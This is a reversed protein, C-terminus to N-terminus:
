ARLVTVLEGLGYLSPLCVVATLVAAGPHRRLVGAARRACGARRHRTTAPAPPRPNVPGTRHRPLRATVAAPPPAPCRNLADPGARLYRVQQQLVEALHVMHLTPGLPSPPTEQQVHRARALLLRLVHSSDEAAQDSLLATVDQLHKKLGAIRRHVEAGELLPADKMLVADSALAAAAIIDAGRGAKLCAAARRLEDVGWPPHSRTFALHIEDSM